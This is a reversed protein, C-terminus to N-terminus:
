NKINISSFGHASLIVRAFSVDVIVNIRQEKASEFHQRPPPSGVTYVMVVAFIEETVVIM